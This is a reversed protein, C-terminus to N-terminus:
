LQRLAPLNQIVESHEDEDRFHASTLIVRRVSSYMNFKKIDRMEQRTIVSYLCSM